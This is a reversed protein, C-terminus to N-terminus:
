PKAAIVCAPICSRATVRLRAAVYSSPSSSVDGEGLDVCHELRARTTMDILTFAELLPSLDENPRNERIKAALRDFAPDISEGNLVPALSPEAASKTVESGAAPEADNLM